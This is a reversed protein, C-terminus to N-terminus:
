QMIISATEPLYVTESEDVTFVVQKTAVDFDAVGTLQRTNGDTGTAQINTYNKDMGIGDANHITFRRLKESMNICTGCVTTNFGDTAKTKPDFVIGM